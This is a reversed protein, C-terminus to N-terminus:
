PKTQEEWLSGMGIKWSHHLDILDPVDGFKVVHMWLSGLAFPHIELTPTKFLRGPGLNFWKWHVNLRQPRLNQFVLGGLTNKGIADINADHTHLSLNVDIQVSPPMPIVCLSLHLYIFYSWTLATWSGSILVTGPNAGLPWYRVGPLLLLCAYKIVM